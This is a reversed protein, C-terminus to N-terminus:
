PPILEMTLASYISYGGRLVALIICPYFSRALDAKRRCGYVSIWDLVAQARRASVQPSMQRLNHIQLISAIENLFSHCVLLYSPGLLVSSMRPWDRFSSGIAFSAGLLNRHAHPRTPTFRFFSFAKRPPPVLSRKICRSSRHTYCAETPTFSPRPAITM